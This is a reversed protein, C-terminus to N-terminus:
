AEKKAAKKLGLGAAALGTAVVAATALSATANNEGTIFGSNPSKVGSEDETAPTSSGDTITITKEKLYAFTYPATGGVLASSDSYSSGAALLTSLVNINDVNGVVIGGYSYEGTGTSIYSGGSLATTAPTVGLSLGTTPGSLTGGTIKLTGLDGEVSIGAGDAGSNTFTDGNVTVTNSASGHIYYADANGATFTGGNITVNSADSELGGGTGNSVFNGSDITANAKQIFAGTITSTGSVTFTALETASAGEVRLAHTYAGTASTIKGSGSIAFTHAGSLGIVPNSDTTNKIEHTSLDLSANGANIVLSGDGLNIDEGLIYDGSPLFFTKIGANDECIMNHANLTAGDCTAGSFDTQVLNNAVAYAGNTLIAGGLITALTTGALFTKYATKM